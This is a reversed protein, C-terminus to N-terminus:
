RVMLSLNGATIIITLALFFMLSVIALASFLYLMSKAMIGLCDIVPGGGLPQLVAAAVNYIFALSLVKLLPFATICLLILLGAIGITNKLLVSAGIVTDAAETFMRGVVPIFNGTFFKASKAILGDSIATAAGQVSMVGLFVAFFAALTFVAVNKMFDGLKTLKYHDSLTSVIGLLASMFLLPLIFKSVLWGATNVLFIILPHFFSVTAAGGSAATLAFILPILAVLFQSMASITGTIYGLAVKFSDLLLILLALTVVMYAVKSVTKNEFASQIAQLLTSFISLLILTGLLRGNILLENLFFRLLGDFLKNMFGQKNSHLFSKFDPDSEPLFGHYDNVVKNWYAEIQGTDINNLQTDSWTQPTEGSQAAFAPPGQSLLICFAALVVPLLKMFFPMNQKIRM